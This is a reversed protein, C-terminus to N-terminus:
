VSRNRAGSRVRVASSAVPNRSAATASAARRVPATSRVQGAPPRIGGGGANRKFTVNLRELRMLTVNIRFSSAPNPTARYPSPTPASFENQMPDRTGSYDDAHSDCDRDGTGAPVGTTLQQAQDVPVRLELEARHGRVAAGPLGEARHVRLQRAEGVPHQGVGRGVGEGVGVQDEEGQRM